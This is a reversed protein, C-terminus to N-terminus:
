EKVEIKINYKDFTKQMDSVTIKKAAQKHRTETYIKGNVECVIRVFERVDEKKHKQEIHDIIDPRLGGAMGITDAIENIVRYTTDWKYGDRDGFILTNSGWAFYERIESM